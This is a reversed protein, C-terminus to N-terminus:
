PDKGRQVLQVGSIGVRGGLALSDSVHDRRLLLPPVRAARRRPLLVRALLLLLLPLLLLLLLPGPASQSAPQAQNQRDPPRLLCSQPVAPGAPLLTTEDNDIEIKINSRIGLTPSSSVTADHLVKLYPM